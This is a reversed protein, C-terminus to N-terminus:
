GADSMSALARVAARVSRTAATPAPQGCFGTVLANSFDASEQASFSNADQNSVLELQRSGDPSTLSVTYSSPTGGDHGLAPGCPLQLRFVGAGYELGPSGTPRFDLLEQQQKAPLLQGAFLARHFKAIDDLTSIIAGASWGWSMNEVTTDYVPPLGMWAPPNIEYGHTHLGHVDPDTVPWSTGLLGLPAIIRTLVETPPVYSQAPPTNAHDVAAIIMGLLIYDTNSYSFASGPPFLPPYNTIAYNVLDAPTYNHLPDHLIQFFFNLDIYDAIGSTHNLLERITITSGTYGNTDLVGPLWKEVTDNISLRGEAELQLVVTSVFSKTISGVRYRDYPSMPEGTALNAVGAAARQIGNGRRELAMAGPVGDSVLQQLAQQLATPTTSPRPAAGAAPAVLLSTTLVAAAALVSGATRLRPRSMM